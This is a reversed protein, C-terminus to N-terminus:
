SSDERRFRKLSLYIRVQPLGCNFGADLVAQGITEEESVMEYESYHLGKNLISPHYM